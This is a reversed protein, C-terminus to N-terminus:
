NKKPQKNKPLCKWDESDVVTAWQKWVVLVKSEIALGISLDPLLTNPCEELFSNNHPSSISVLKSMM